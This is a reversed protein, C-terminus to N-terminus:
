LEYTGGGRSCCVSQFTPNPLQPWVHQKSDGTHIHQSRIIGEINLIKFASFLAIFIWDM